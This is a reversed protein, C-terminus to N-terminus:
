YTICLLYEYLYAGFRGALYRPMVQLIADSDAATISSTIITFGEIAIIGYSSYAYVILLFCPERIKQQVIYQVINHCSLQFSISATLGYHYYSRLSQSGAITVFSM